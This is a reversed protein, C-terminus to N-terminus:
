PIEGTVATAPISGMAEKIRDALGRRVYEAAEEIGKAVARYDSNGHGIMVIGDVGLLPMAGFEEPALDRKVGEFAPRALLAGIRTRWSVMLHRRLSTMVMEVGAEMAKFDINGVFGDAVVVDVEGSIADTPQVNGVFEAAFGPLQETLLEFAARTLTNGKTPEEGNSLLGVRVPGALRIMAGVFTVGLRAFCLLDEPSCEVNAGADLIVVKGQKLTPIVLALPPRRVGDIRGIGGKDADRAAWLVAARTDGCSFLADAKKSAVMRTVIVVSSETKRLVEPLSDQPTVVVDTVCDLRIGTGSRLEHVLSAPGVPLITVSHGLARMALRVGEAIEEPGKDSGLLDVAVVLKQRSM